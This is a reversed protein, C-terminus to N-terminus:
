KFADGYTTGRNESFFDIRTSCALKNALYRSIKGKDKAGAKGIFSSNYLLGFKPTKGSRAKL